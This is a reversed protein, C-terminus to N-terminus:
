EGRLPNREQRHKSNMNIREKEADDTSLMLYITMVATALLVTRLIRFCPWFVFHGIVYLQSINNKRHKLITMLVENHGARNM